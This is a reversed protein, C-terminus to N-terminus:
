RENQMRQVIEDYKNIKEELKELTEDMDKMISNYKEIKEEFFDFVEDITENFNSDRDKGAVCKCNRSMARKKAVERTLKEKM